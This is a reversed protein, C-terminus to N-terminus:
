YKVLKHKNDPNMLDTLKKSFEKNKLEQEESSLAVARRVRRTKKEKGSVIERTEFRFDKFVEDMSLSPDDMGPPDQRPKDEQM